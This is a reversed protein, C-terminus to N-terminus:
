KHTLTLDGRIDLGFIFVLVFYLLYIMVRGCQSLRRRESGSYIRRENVLTQITGMWAGANFFRSSLSSKTM